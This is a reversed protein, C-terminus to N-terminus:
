YQIHLREKLKAVSDSSPDIQKMEELCRTAQVRDNQKLFLLAAQYFDEMANQSRGSKKYNYGRSFLYFSANEPDLEKAKTYDDTAKEVEDLKEYALGRYFYAVADQPNLEIARSYDDVALQFEGKISYSYARNFYDTDCGPNLSIAKTFNDIAQVLNNFGPSGQLLQPSQLPKLYERRFKQENEERYLGYSGLVANLHRYGRKRYVIYNERNELVKFIAAIFVAATLLDAIKWIRRHLYVPVVPNFLIAITLSTWLWERKELEYSKAALCLACLFIVWRLFIYYRVPFNRVVPMILLVIAVILLITFLSRLKM